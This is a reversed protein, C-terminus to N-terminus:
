YKYELQVREDDGGTIILIGKSKDLSAKFGGETLCTVIKDLFKSDSDHKVQEENTSNEEIKGDTIDAFRDSFGDSTRGLSNDLAEKNNEKWNKLYNWAAMPDSKFKDKYESLQSVIEIETDEQWPMDLFKIFQEVWKKLDSPTNENVFSEFLKVHKM